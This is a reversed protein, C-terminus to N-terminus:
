RNNCKKKIKALNIKSSSRWVLNIKVLNIKIKIDIMNINRRLMM